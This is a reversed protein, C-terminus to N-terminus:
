IEVEEDEFGEDDDFSLDDLDEATAPAAGGFSTDDKNFQVTVLTARLGKGFANDQAWLEVVANVHCGSYLKGHKETLPSKNRDVVAPAGDKENRTATLAWNGAYGNYAKTDGNVFCCKNSSAMIAKYIADAKAGWKEKAITKLAAEIAGIGPNTPPILFTSRYQFPGQGQYQVPVFVDPFALRVDKLVIKM